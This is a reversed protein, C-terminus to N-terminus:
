GDMSFEEGLNCANPLFMHYASHSIIFLLIFLKITAIVEQLSSKFFVPFVTESLNNTSMLIISFAILILSNKWEEGVEVTIIIDFRICMM